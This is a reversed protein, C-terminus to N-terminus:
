QGSQNYTLLSTGTEGLLTLVRNEVRYNRVQPLQRTTAADQARLAADHCTGGTMPGPTITLRSASVFYTGNFSKCGTTGSVRSNSEFNLVAAAASAAPTKFTGGENFSGLTWSTQNLDPSSTPNTSHKDSGCAALAVVAVAVVAIFV